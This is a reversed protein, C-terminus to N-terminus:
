MGRTISGRQLETRRRLAQWDPEAPIQSYRRRLWEAFLPDTLTLREERVQAVGSAKIGQLARQAAGAGALGTARQARTGQPAIESAIAVAVRRENSRLGNWRLDFEPGCRVLAQEIAARATAVTAREGNGTLEWLQSALLNTRQPHGAGLAAIIKAAEGAERGADAFRRTIEGAFVIPAITGVNVTAARESWAVREHSSLDPGAFVHGVRDGGRARSHQIAEVVGTLPLVDQVEDFGVIVRCGTQEAVEAAVELLGELRGKPRSADAGALRFPLAELREVLAEEVAGGGWAQGYAEELRRVFDNTTLVGSCDIRVGLGGDGVASASLAANILSTKGHRSPGEVLIDNGDRLDASLKSLEDERGVQDKSDELPRDFVFPNEVGM